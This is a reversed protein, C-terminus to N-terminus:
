SVVGCHSHGPCRGAQYFMNYNPLNLMSVDSQGSLWCENLCIISVPNSVNVRQIFLKLEDFKAFANCINIDLISLGTNKSIIDIFQNEGYYPSHQLIPIEENDDDDNRDLLHTLSSLESLNDDDIFQNKRVM